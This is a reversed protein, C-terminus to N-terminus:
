SIQALKKSPNIPPQASPRSHASGPSLVGMPALPFKYAIDVLSLVEVGQSMTRALICVKDWAQCLEAGVQKRREIGWGSRRHYLMKRDFNCAPVGKTRSTNFSQETSLSLSLPPLPHPYSANGVETSTCDMDHSKTRYRM